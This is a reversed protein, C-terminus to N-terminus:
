YSLKKNYKRKSKILLKANKPSLSTVQRNISSIVRAIIKGLPSDSDLIKNLNQHTKRASATQYYKVFKKFEKELTILQESSPHSDILAESVFSRIENLRAAKDPHQTFTM